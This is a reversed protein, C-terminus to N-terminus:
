RTLREIELTIRHCARCIIRYGDPIAEVDEPRHETGCAPCKVGKTLTVIASALVARMRWEGPPTPPCEPSEPQDTGRTATKRDTAIQAAFDRLVEAIAGHVATLDPDERRAWGTLASRIIGIVASATATARDNHIRM